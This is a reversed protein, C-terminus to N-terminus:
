SEWDETIVFEGARVLLENDSDILDQKAQRLKVSRFFSADVAWVNLWPVTQQRQEPTLRKLEQYLQELTM